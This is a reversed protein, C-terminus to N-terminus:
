SLGGEPSFVTGPQWWQAGSHEDIVSVLRECFEWGADDLDIHHTLFGTPEHADVSGTRRSQLHATLQDLTKAEGAFHPGGKWRIPDCHANIQNLGPVSESATRPGFASIACYHRAAIAGFLAPDIRNWPPVLVPLFDDSFLDELIVRGKDLDDLVAGHGRHLGIEWAGLGQGRPAHNIHAYGHQAVQVHAANAIELKLSSNVNAPIVALLLGSTSTMSILRELKPGPSIADDDRWWLTATREQSIWADLEQQLLIWPDTTKL